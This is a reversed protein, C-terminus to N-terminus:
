ELKLILFNLRLFTLYSLGPLMIGGRKLFHIQWFLYGHEYIDEVEENKGRFGYMRCVLFKGKKRKVRFKTISILLAPKHLWSNLFWPFFYCKDYYNGRLTGKYIVPPGLLRESTDSFHDRGWLASM